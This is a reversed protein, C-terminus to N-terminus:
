PTKTCLDEPLGASRKRQDNLLETVLQAIGDADEVEGQTAQVGHLIIAVKRKLRADSEQPLEIALELLRAPIKVLGAFGGILLLEQEVKVLHAAKTGISHKTRTTRYTIAPYWDNAGPKWRMMASMVCRM